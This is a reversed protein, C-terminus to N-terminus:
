MQLPLDKRCQFPSTQFTLVARSIIPAKALRPCDLGYWLNIIYYTLFLVNCYVNVQMILVLIFCAIYDLKNDGLEIPSEVAILMLHNLNNKGM